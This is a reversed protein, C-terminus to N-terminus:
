FISLIRSAFVRKSSDNSWVFMALFLCYPMSAGAGIVLRWLRRCATMEGFIAAIVLLNPARLPPEIPPPPSLMPPPALAAPPSGVSPSLASSLLSPLWPEAPPEPPMREDTSFSDPGIRDEDEEEALPPWGTGTEDSSLSSYVWHAHVIQRYVHCM